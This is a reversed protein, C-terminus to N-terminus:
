RITLDKEEITADTNSTTNQIQIRITDTIVLNNVAISLTLAASVSSADVSAVQANIHTTGNLFARIQFTDSGGGSGQITM